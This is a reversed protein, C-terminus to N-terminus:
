RPFGDRISNIRAGNPKPDQAQPQPQVQSPDRKAEAPDCAVLSGGVFTGSDNNFQLERCTNGKVHSRVQGTRAQSTRTKDGRGEHATARLSDPMGGNYIAIGAVLLLTAVVVGALTINRSRERARRQVEVGHQRRKMEDYALRAREIATLPAANPSM